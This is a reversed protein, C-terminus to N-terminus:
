ATAPYFSHNGRIKLTDLITEPRRTLVSEFIQGFIAILSQFDTGLSIKKNNFREPLKTLLQALSHDIQHEDEVQLDEYIDFKLKDALM